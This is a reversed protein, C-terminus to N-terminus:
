LTLPRDKWRVTASTTEIFLIRCYPKSCKWRLPNANESYSNIHRRLNRALYPSSTPGDGDIVERHVKAFELEVLILWSSSARTLTSTPHRRLFAAVNKARSSLDGLILHTGGTSIPM